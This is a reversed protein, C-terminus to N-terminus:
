GFSLRRSRVRGLAAAALLVWMSAPSSSLLCAACHWHFTTRTGQLSRFEIRGFAPWETAPAVPTRLCQREPGLLSAYEAVREVNRLQAQSDVIRNSLVIMIQGLSIAYTIALSVSTFNSQRSAADYTTMLACSAMAMFLVSINNMLELRITVWERSVRANYVSRASLEFLEMHQIALANQCEYARLVALGELTESMASVMPERNKAELRKLLGNTCQYYRLLAAYCVAFLVLFVSMYPVAYCMLACSGLATTLATILPNMVQSMKLDCVELDNSFRSAISGMPNSEFFSVPAHVISHIMAAQSLRVINASGSIAIKERALMLVLVVAVAIGYWQVYEGDSGPFYKSGFLKKRGAWYTLILDSVIMAGRVAFSLAVVLALNFWGNLEYYWILAWQSSSSSSSPTSTLSLANSTEKEIM